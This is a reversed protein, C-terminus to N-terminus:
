LGLTRKWLIRNKKKRHNKNTKDEFCYGKDEEAPCWQQQGQIAAEVEAEYSTKFLTEKEYNRM